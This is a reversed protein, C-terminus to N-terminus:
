FCGLECAHIKIKAEDCAKGVESFHINLKEALQRAENCSIRGQPALEKLKELLEKAEM